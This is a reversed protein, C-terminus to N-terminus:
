RQDKTGHGAGRQHAGLGFFHGLKEAGGGGPVAESYTGAPPSLAGSWLDPTFSTFSGHQVLPEHGDRTVIFLNNFM